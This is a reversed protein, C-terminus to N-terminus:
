LFLVIWTPILYKAPITLHLFLYQILLILISLQFCKVRINYYLYYPKPIKLIPQDPTKFRICIIKPRIKAAMNTYTPTLRSGPNFVVTAVMVVGVYITQTKTLHSVISFGGLETFALVFTM